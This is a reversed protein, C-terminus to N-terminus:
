CLQIAVTDRLYQQTSDKKNMLTVTLHFQINKKIKCKLVLSRCPLLTKYVENYLNNLQSKQRLHVTLTEMKGKRMAAYLYASQPKKCTRGKQSINLTQSFAECRKYLYTMEHGFFFATKFMQIQNKKVQQENVMFVKTIVM